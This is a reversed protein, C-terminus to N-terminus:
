AERRPEPPIEEDDNNDADDLETWPWANQERPDHADFLLDNTEDDEGV